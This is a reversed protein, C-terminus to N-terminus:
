AEKLPLKNLDVGTDALADLTPFRNNAIWRRAIKIDRGGNVAAVDPVRESRVTVAGASM